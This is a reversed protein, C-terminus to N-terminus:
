IEVEGSFTVFADGTLYTRFNNDCLVYLDGGSMSVTIPKSVECLGNQIAAVASACAGTGCALTEGSGREFVRVKLHNKDLEECFETNVGDAFRPNNECIRGIKELNVFDVDPFFAVQHPNGVDIERMELKEGVVELVFIEGACVIGMDITIKEVKGNKITLFAERIGSETEIKIRSKKIFNCEYVLRAVCRAANGCMKAITGDSNYIQMKVDAIKSRCILVIGDSGVSFHRKSLLKAVKEPEKLESELCDFFIYDNGTGQMKTFHLRM